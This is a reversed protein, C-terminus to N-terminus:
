HLFVLLVDFLHALSFQRNDASTQYQFNPFCHGFRHFALWRILVLAIRHVKVLSHYRFRLRLALYRDLAIVTLTCLSATGFLSTILTHPLGVACFLRPNDWPITLLYVSFLPVGVLDIALYSIALSYFLSKSTPHLSICRRLALLIIVNGVTATISFLSNTVGM